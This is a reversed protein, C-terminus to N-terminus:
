QPAQPVTGGLALANCLELTTRSGTQNDQTFTISKVLLDLNGDMILMPSKVRVTQEPDWLKGSSKLWGQVTVYVTIADAQQWDKDMNVRNQIQQKNFGPLELPLIAAAAQGAFSNEASSRQYLEHTVKSGSAQDGGPAQAMGNLQNFFTPSFIVERGEIIDVGETVTDSGGSPGVSAVLDGQVNSTLYVGGLSRLPIELAEMVSIGPPLSIRPFKMQPLQGGIVKFNIKPFPQLLSRAYQEYNVKNHEMTKHVVSAYNLVMVSSLGQLEIHHRRSDYYVQRTHIYGSFAPQGALTVEAWDGPRIQLVGFNNAVPFGESCTFRFMYFPSQKKTQRVLVSEWDQYLQGNITLVALENPKAVM